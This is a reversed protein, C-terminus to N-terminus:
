RLAKVTSYAFKMNPNWNGGHIFAFIDGRAVAEDLDRLTWRLQEAAVSPVRLAIEASVAIGTATPMGRGLMELIQEDTLAKKERKSPNWSM